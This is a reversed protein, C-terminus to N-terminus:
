PKPHGACYVALACAVGQTQGMFYTTFTLAWRAPGAAVARMAEEILPLPDTGPEYVLYVTRRPDALFTEILVGAWGADGTSEAWARCLAPAATARRSLAGEPLTRVVGDWASEMFEPYRLLWAPGGAPCEGPELVVHHACINSRQTYDLGAPGVRSIVSLTKGGWAIRLHSSLM